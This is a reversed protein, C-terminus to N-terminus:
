DVVTMRGRLTEDGIRGHIAAAHDLLFDSGSGSLGERRLEEILLASVEEIIEIKKEGDKAALLDSIKVHIVSGLVPLEKVARHMWKYFPTYRRNLLFVLSIVDASFKMVAYQAAFHEGRKASRSYNYQGHQGATVCRSAIKKLRVDEPYFALLKERWSSFEGFPDHFVRGNTCTALAQEPIRMWEIPKEPPRDLGTYTKYFAATAIVGTRGEEGPSATRPGFGKFIKPLNDYERQLQKGIEDYDKLTLWLCFAPGWDHDRSTEDDFGFCESGPGAFGAAIREEHKAFKERVMSAGFARYYHESLDLGNM